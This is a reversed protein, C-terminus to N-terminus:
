AGIRFRANEGSLTVTLNMDHGPPLDVNNGYHLDNPGSAVGQMVAVPLYLTQEATRDVVTLTPMADSVVRGTARACIHVELHRLSSRSPDGSAGTGSDGMDGMSGMDHSAGDGGAMTGRLMIEGDTPHKSAVEGPSYMREPPGTVVAMVYTPTWAVTSAAMRCPEPVRGEEAAAPTGARASGCAVACLLAVLVPGCRKM